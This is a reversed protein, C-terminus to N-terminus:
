GVNGIYVHEAIGVCRPQGEKEGIDCIKQLFAVIKGDGLGDECIRYAESKHM